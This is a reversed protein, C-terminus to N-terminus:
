SAKGLRDAVRLANAMLTFSLGKAPLFNWPAGDGLYVNPAGNLTGDRNAHFRKDFPNDFPITGAYHISGAKGPDVKGIPICKLSRLGSAFIDEHQRQKALEAPTQQYTFQAIPMGDSGPCKVTLFKSEQQQDAFFIGFVALSNLLTRAVILGLAPPLPMEKILKFLLLSRYSYMQFCGYIDSEGQAELAGGLQAMSHRKDRVERGLKGLNVTPMYTYPNCLIPTKVGELGLSHLALRASNLAGACLMLRRGETQEIENTAINRSWVTVGDGHDEFRVALRGGLYTFEPQKRLEDIMYKPRYISKRVDGYFDTDFYPNAKRQCDLDKSLIAMPIRGLTMGRDHLREPQRAHRDLIDQANDDIALPPQHRGVANWLRFNVESESDASIGALDAANQYYPILEEPDLGMRRIESPEFTFCAAGWGAGLGGVSLAMLPFFSESEAPLLNESGAQIHQRPPTLQAGVRVGNKPVGELNDGILYSRQNRDTRRLENFPLDPVRDRLPSDAGPDIMTVNAGADVLARAAMAGSIGSGIVIVDPSPPTM